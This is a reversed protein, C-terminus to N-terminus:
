ELKLFIVISLFCTPSPQQDWGAFYISAYASYDLLDAQKATLSHCTEARHGRDWREFPGRPLISLLIKLAFNRSTEWPSILYLDCNQALDKECSTM